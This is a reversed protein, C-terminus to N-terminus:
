EFELLGAKDNLEAEAPQGLPFAENLWAIFNRKPRYKVRLEQLLNKLSRAHESEPLLEHLEQLLAIAKRYGDNNGSSVYFDAMRRYCLLTRQPTETSQKGVIHLLNPDVATQNILNWLKEIDQEELYIWGLLNVLNQKQHRELYGDNLVAINQEIFTEAQQYWDRQEGSRVAMMKLAQYEELDRHTMFAQWQQELALEPQGTAMLIEQQIRQVGLSEALRSGQIKDLWNQAQAYDQLKLNLEALEIYDYPTEVVKQRLEILGVIDNNHKLTQELVRQLASYQRKERWDGGQWQPLVDWQQRVLTASTKKGRTKLETVAGQEFCAQGLAFAKKGALKILLEDSIDPLENM